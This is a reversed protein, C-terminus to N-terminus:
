RASVEGILSAARYITVAGSQYAVPLSKFKEFDGDPYTTRELPGVYVYTVGYKKLIQTMQATDKTKYLLNVDEFRGARAKTTGGRWQDEHGGWGLIAPIGTAVSIRAASTYDGGVAEAIVLDQGQAQGSLFDIAKRDDVNFYKIGQLDGDARYTRNFSGGVPYLAAGAIVLAVLAGWGVRFEQERPFSSRWRAALYYLAFGGGLALLLWAEYYLKFVTNMRSHFVDGVFFFECGLILLLALVILGLAFIVSDREEEREATVELVLAAIAGALMLGLALATLWAVGRDGIQTFIGQAHGGLNEVPFPASILPLEGKEVLFAFAWAVIIAAAPALSFAILRPTIRDRLSLLRAAVFPLAIAFLPGWFLLLHFPRTGPRTIGDNSVVAGLGNAQSNGSISIFFPIYLLFALLILPAAFSAVQLLLDGTIARVRGFNSLFAMGVLVTTLPVVDWTNIFGVGGLLMAVAVLALPRQLWFTIDLPESSRYLSLAAGVVLLVFPLAMVHPHIDGLLFSFMPFETIVRANDAHSLPYIRSAGFFAFFDSPYWLPGWKANAGDSKLGSVDVWDYFRTGGMGVSSLYQFVWVLNGMLVLMMGGVVGFVPPRWGFATVGVASPEPAVPQPETVPMAASAADQAKRSQRATAPRSSPPLPSVPLADERMRVLNYVLGAAGVLAMAAITALGINYGIDTQVDSLRSMMAVLVYGFYYYAVTHGSLWPDKPPFHDARYAANIFMLDMPQETGSINGVMARAWVAVAFVLLFLLEVGVAYYWYRRFWERLNDRDRYAFLGAICMLLFLTFYMARASNPLLHVSNLLWFVYGLVILAFPKSLAYGRDPLRRFLALCLPLLMIGVVELVLWWRFAESM